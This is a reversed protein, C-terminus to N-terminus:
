TENIANTIELLGRQKTTGTRVPRIPPTLQIRSEISVMWAKITLVTTADDEKKARGVSCGVIRTRGTERLRPKNKETKM